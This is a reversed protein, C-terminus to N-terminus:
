EVNKAVRQFYNGFYRCSKRIIYIYIYIYIYIFLNFSKLKLICYSFTTDYAVVDILNLVFHNTIRRM